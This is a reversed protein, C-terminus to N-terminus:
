FNVCLMEHWSLYYYVTGTNLDINKSGPNPVTSPPVGLCANINGPNPTTNGQGNGGCNM